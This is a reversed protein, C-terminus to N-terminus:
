DTPVLGPPTGALVPVGDVDLRQTCPEQDPNMSNIYQKSAQCEYLGFTGDHSDVVWVVRGEVTFTAAVTTWGRDVWTDWDGDLQADRADYLAVEDAVRTLVFNGDSSLLGVTGPVEPHVNFYPHVVSLVDENSRLEAGSSVDLLV